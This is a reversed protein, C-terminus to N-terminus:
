SHISELNDGIDDVKSCSSSLQDVVMKSKISDVENKFPLKLEGGKEITLSSGSITAVSLHGVTLDDKLKILERLRALQMFSMNFLEFRFYETVKVKASVFFTLFLCLKVRYTKCPKLLGINQRTKIFRHKARNKYVM